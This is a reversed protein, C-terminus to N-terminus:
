DCVGSLRSCRDSACTCTVGHVTIRQDGYAVPERTGLLPSEDEMEGEGELRGAV